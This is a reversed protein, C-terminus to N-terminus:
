SSASPSPFSLGLGVELLVGETSVLAAVGDFYLPGSALPVTVGLLPGIADPGTLEDTEGFSILPGARLSAAGPGREGLYLVATPTAAFIAGEGSLAALLEGEGRVGFRESLAAEVGAGVSGVVFAFAVASGARAYVMGQVSTESMGDGERTSEGQALVSGPLVALLLLALPLISRRRVSSPTSASM